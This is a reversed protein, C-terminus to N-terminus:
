PLLLMRSPLLTKPHKRSDGGRESTELEYDLVVNGRCGFQSELRIVMEKLLTDAWLPFVGLVLVPALPVVMKTILTSCGDIVQPQM